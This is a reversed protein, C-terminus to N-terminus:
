CRGSIPGTNMCPNCNKCANKRFKRNRKKGVTSAGRIKEDIVGATRGTWRGTSSKQHKLGAGEAQNLYWPAKAMYEPIHPNIFNGENDVEPPLTGAKRAEEVARKKSLEDRTLRTSSSAM